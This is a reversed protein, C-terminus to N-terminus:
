VLDQCSLEGGTLKVIKIAMSLSIKREGSIYRSLTSTSVNLKDAFVLQSINNKELWLKLKM